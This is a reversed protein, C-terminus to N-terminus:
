RRAIVRPRVLDDNNIVITAYQRPRAEREYIAQGEIYRHRRAREIRTAIEVSRLDAREPLDQTLYEHWAAERRSEATLFQSELV